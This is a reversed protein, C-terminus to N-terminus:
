KCACALIVRVMVHITTQLLNTALVALVFTAEMQTSVYNLAAMQEMGVNM